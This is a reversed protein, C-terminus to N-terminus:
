RVVVGQSVCAELTRAAERLHERISTALAIMSANLSPAAEAITAAASRDLQERARSIRKVIYREARERDKPCDIGDRITLMDAMGDLVAHGESATFDLHLAVDAESSLNLAKSLRLVDGSDTTLTSAAAIVRDLCAADAAVASHAMAVSAILVSLIRPMHRGGPSNSVMDGDARRRSGSQLCRMPRSIGVSRPHSQALARRLDTIAVRTYISTTDLREHGLLEQIHRVDAGGQLLHTACSHRLVHPSAKPHIGAREAHWRVVFQITIPRLRRGDRSLFLAPQGSDRVLQSRSKRLYRILAASARGGLPVLRDKRGKGNRVLVTADRLDVDIVDLRVCESLRIGTGYLLELLARNRRGVATQPSPMEVLRRAEATTLV